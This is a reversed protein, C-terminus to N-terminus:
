NRRCKQAVTLKFRRDEKMTTFFEAMYKKIGAFERPEFSSEFRNIVDFIKPENRLYEARMYETLGDSRCFGRYVRERVSTIELSEDWTAYPANVVGALDFDYPVAIFKRSPTEIVKINHFFTTSWDTNAIMFEFFDHRIASTDQMQRPHLNVSDIVKAKFRDAMLDDDEIFFAVTPYSKIHKGSANGLTLNALRVNFSYPTIVKYLQYCLYEKMILDDNRKGYLCPVVLKLSKNGAFPTNKADNKKMKIRLPPFNCNRRRFNGRARLNIALSDWNGQENQYALYSSFYLTDNTSNKVKGMAYNLRVTVPKEDRFLRPIGSKQAAVCFAIFQVAILLFFNRNM